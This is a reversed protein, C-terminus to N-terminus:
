DIFREAYSFAPMNPKIIERNVAGRLRDRLTSVFADKINTECFLENIYSQPSYLRGMAQQAIFQNLYYTDEDFRINILPLAQVRLPPGNKALKVGFGLIPVERKGALIDIGQSDLARDTIGHFPKNKNINNLAACAM